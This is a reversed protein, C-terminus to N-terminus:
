THANPVAMPGLTAVAHEGAAFWAGHHNEGVLWSLDRSVVYFELSHHNRLTIAIAGLTAEFFWFPPGAKADEFDEIILWAHSSPSGLTALLELDRTGRLFLSPERLDEWIWYRMRGGRGTKTFTDLVRDLLEAARWGPMQHFSSEDLKADRAAALLANATEYKPRAM